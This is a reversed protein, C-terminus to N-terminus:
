IRENVVRGCFKCFRSDRDRTTTGDPLRCDCMSMLKNAISIIESFSRPQQYQAHLDTVKILEFVNM